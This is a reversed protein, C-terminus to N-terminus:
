LLLVTAGVTAIMVWYGGYMAVVKAAGSIQSANSPDTGGAATTGNPLTGNIYAAQTGNPYTIYQVISTNVPHDTGNNILNRVFTSNGDDDCGCESYKQCLCTVNATQNHGNNYYWYPSHYPYAYLSGYLWLGPFFAFATIPLALPLFGRTPSRQGSTYPVAAGGAYRGNYAPKPGSGSITRGGTNQSTSPPLNLLSISSPFLSLLIGSPTPHHHDGVAAPHVLDEEKAAV